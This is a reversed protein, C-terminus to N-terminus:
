VVSASVDDVPMSLDRSDTAMVSLACATVSAFDAPTCCLSALTAEIAASRIGAAIDL